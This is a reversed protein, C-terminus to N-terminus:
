RFVVRLLTKKLKKLAKGELQRTREKSIGLHNGVDRLTKPETNPELAFREKIIAMENDSLRARNEKLVSRLDDVDPELINQRVYDGPVHLDHRFEVAGKEKEMSDKARASNLKQIISSCAYSSFKIKRRIDFTNISNLFAPTAEIALYSLGQYFLGIKRAMSFILPFNDSAIKNRLKLAMERFKYARQEQEKSPHGNFFGQVSQAYFYRAGNFHLFLEQEQEKTLVHTKQIKRDIGDSSDLLDSWVKLDKLGVNDCYGELDKEYDKKRFQNNYVYSKAIYMSMLNLPIEKRTLPLFMNRTSEHRIDSFAGVIEDLETRSQKYHLRPRIRVLADKVGGNAGTYSLVYKGSRSIPVLFHLNAIEQSSDIFVGPGLSIGEIGKGGFLPHCQKKPDLDVHLVM